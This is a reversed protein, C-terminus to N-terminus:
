KLATQNLDHTTPMSLPPDDLPTPLYSYSANRRDKEGKIKCMGRESAIRNPLQRSLGTNTRLQQMRTWITRTVIVFM